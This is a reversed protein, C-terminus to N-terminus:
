KDTEKKGAIDPVSLKKEVRALIREPSMAPGADKLDIDGDFYDDMLDSILAM